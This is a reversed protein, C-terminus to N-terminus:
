RVSIAVIKSSGVYRWAVDITIMMSHNFSGTARWIRCGSCIIQDLQSTMAYNVLRLNNKKPIVIDVQVGRRAATNLAGILVLDPIFYPSQIRIHRKAVAFAALLM